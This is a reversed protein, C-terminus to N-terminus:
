DRVGAGRGRAGLFPFLGKPAGLPMTPPAGKALTMGTRTALETTSKVFLEMALPM